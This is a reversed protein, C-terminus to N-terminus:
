QPNEKVKKPISALVKWIDGVEDVLVRVQQELWRLRNALDIPNHYVLEKLAQQKHSMARVDITLQDLTVHGMDIKSM